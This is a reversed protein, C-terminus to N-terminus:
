RPPKRNKKILSSKSTSLKLLDNITPDLVSHLFTSMQEDNRARHSPVMAYSIILRLILEALNDIAGAQAQTTISRLGVRDQLIDIIMQHLVQAPVAQNAVWSKSESQFFHAHLPRRPIENLCFLIGKIIRQRPDCIPSLLQECDKAMSESEMALVAMFIKETREFHRYITARSIGSEAAIDAATTKAVGLRLYCGKAANIIATQRNM